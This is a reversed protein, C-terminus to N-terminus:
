PADEDVWLCREPFARCVRKAVSAHVSLTAKRGEVTCKRDGDGDLQARIGAEGVGDLMVRSQAAHYTTGCGAALLVLLLLSVASPPGGSPRRLPRMPTGTRYRQVMAWLSSALLTFAGVLVENSQEALGTFHFVVTLLAGIAAAGFTKITTSDLPGKV